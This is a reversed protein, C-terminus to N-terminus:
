LVHIKRAQTAKEVQISKRGNKMQEIGVWIEPSTNFALEEPLREPPELSTVKTCLSCKNKQRLNKNM